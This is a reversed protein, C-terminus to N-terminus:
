PKQLGDNREASVLDDACNLLDTLFVVEAGLRYETHRLAWQKALGLHPRAGDNIRRTHVLLARVKDLREALVARLSGLAEPEM